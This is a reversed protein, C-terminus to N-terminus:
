GQPLAFLGAVAPFDAAVPHRESAVTDDQPRVVQCTRLGAMAAADLEAEVDSLFLVEVTPVNMGIALRNYSDADRKGGVRTDFFGSFLPTLDGDVSHGFILKQAEVSGSSYVHLRLGAKSWRRLCPCVDPYLAGKLTGDVYGQRWILGQLAKLPTVKADQDMWHLLTTLPAQGPVMVAVDALVAAVEPMETREVWHPLHTRAYPFLVDRVFAIPTTTGEIDTIIAAPPLVTV